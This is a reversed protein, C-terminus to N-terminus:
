MCGSSAFFRSTRRPSSTRTMERRPSIRTRTSVRPRLLGGRPRTKTGQNSSPRRMLLTVSSAVSGMEFCVSKLFHAIRMSFTVDHAPTENDQRQQRGEGKGAHNKRAHGERLIFCIHMVEAGAHLRGLFGGRRR